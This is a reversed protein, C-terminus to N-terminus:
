LWSGVRNFCGKKAVLYTDAILFDMLPLFLLSDFAIGSDAKMNNGM